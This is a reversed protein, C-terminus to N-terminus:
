GNLLRKAFNAVTEPCIERVCFDNKDISRADIKKGMDIIINKQTVYANRHSPRNGFLTISAVNQAWAIHTIGSDNGILLDCNSIFNIIQALNMKELVIAHTKLAIKQAKECEKEDGYCLFVDYEKLLNIVKDFKDYIKSEESAFAAIVIRKKSSIQTDQKFDFCPLKDLIERKQFKFNLAYSVLSLNRIIINEDYSIKLKHQYFNAAAKEKTSERAFGYRQGKLLRTVLSSKILGQLDIIKDFEQLDMLIKASKIFKKEKLPISIINDVGKCTQLVCSFKEDIIWTIECDQFHKKIFQVVVVAHIIDGLSSLKIIAIKIKKTDM